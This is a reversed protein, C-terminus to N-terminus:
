RQCFLDIWKSWRCSRCHQRLMGIQEIWVSIWISAAPVADSADVVFRGDIANEHSFCVCRARLYTRPAARPMRQMRLPRTTGCRCDLTPADVVRARYGANYLSNLASRHSYRFYLLSSSPPAPSLPFRYSPPIAVSYRRRCRHVAYSYARYVPCLTAEFSASVIGRRRFQTGKYPVPITLPVPSISLFFFFKLFHFLLSLTACLSRPITRWDTPM